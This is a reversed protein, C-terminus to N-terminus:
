YPITLWYFVDRCLHGGCVRTLAHRLACNEARCKLGRLDPPDPLSQPPGAM